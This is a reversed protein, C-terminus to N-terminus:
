GRPEKRGGHAHSRRDGYFRQVARQFRQALPAAVADPVYGVRQWADQAARVEYEQNKWKTEDDVRGGITNAALRERLQDALLAVSSTAGALAPQRAAVQEVRECLQELQKRNADADLESHRFAEPAASLVAGLASDFRTALPRLVERPVSGGQQWGTRISRVRELLGEHPVTGAQLGAALGELDVVVAERRALRDAFQQTDRLRYREMFADCAARFKQWVQESRARKVPGSAKWEAQLAKLEAFGAELDTATTLAEARAILALKADLNATWVQKRQKLDDQRRTFFRNCATRFRDWV